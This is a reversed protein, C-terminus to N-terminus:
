RSRCLREVRERCSARGIQSLNLMVRALATDLPGVLEVGPLKPAPPGYRGGQSLGGRGYGGQGFAAAPVLLLTAALFAFSSGYKMPSRRLPYRFSVHSSHNTAGNASRSWSASANGRLSWTARSSTVCSAPSSCTAARRRSSGAAGNWSTSRRM